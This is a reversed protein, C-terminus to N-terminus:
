RTARHDTSRWSTRRQCIYWCITPLKDCQVFDPCDMSRRESQREDIIHSKQLVLQQPPEAFACSLRPLAM